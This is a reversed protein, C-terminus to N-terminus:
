DATLERVNAEIVAARLREARKPWPQGSQLIRTIEAVTRPDHATNLICVLACWYARLRTFPTAM